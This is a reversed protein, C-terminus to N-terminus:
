NPGFLHTLLFESRGRLVICWKPALVIQAVKSQFLKVGEIDPDPEELGSSCM